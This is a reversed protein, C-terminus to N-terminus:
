NGNDHIVISGGGVAIPGSDLVTNEGEPGDWWIRIHFTDQSDDRVQIKFRYPFGTPASQGNVTGTGLFYASSDTGSVILWDYGVSHLNVGGNQFQFETSGTPTSVGKKYRAVFGFNARGFVSPDAGYAGVPVDIWGGGTVFGSGTDFVAVLTCVPDSTNGASDTGVVCVEYVGPEAIGPIDAVVSELSEDFAGDAASMPIAPGDDIRYEAGAIVSDGMVTDDITAHLGIPSMVPAPNPDAVVNSVVPADSDPNVVTIVLSETATNGDADTAVVDLTQEGAALNLTASFAVENPDDPNGTAQLDANVGDVVVSVVAVDDTAVGEVQVSGTPLIAGQVPATVDLQPGTPIPFVLAAVGCIGALSGDDAIAFIGCSSDGEVIRDRLLFPETGEWIIHNRIDDGNDEGGVLFGADNVLWVGCRAPPLSMGPSECPLLTPLTADSLWHLGLLEWNEDRTEGGIVGDDNIANASAYRGFPIFPSVPESILELDFLIRLGGSADWIFPRMDIGGDESPPFQIQGVVQGLNNLSVAVARNQGGSGDTIPIQTGMVPDWLVSNDLEDQILVQGLNNLVRPFAAEDGHTVFQAFGRAGNLTIVGTSDSWYAPDRPSSAADIERLWFVIAGHDNIGRVHEALIDPVLMSEGTQRDIRALHQRWFPDSNGQVLAAIYRGNPSIHAHDVITGGEPLQESPAAFQGTDLTESRYTPPAAIVSTHALLLWLIGLGTRLIKTM